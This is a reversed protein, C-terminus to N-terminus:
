WSLKEAKRFRNHQKGILVHVYISDGAISQDQQMSWRTNKLTNKIINYKLEFIKRKHKEPVPLVLKHLASAWFIEMWMFFLNRNVCRNSIFLWENNEFHNESTLKLRKNHIEIMFLIKISEYRKSLWLPFNTKFINALMFSTASSGSEKHIIRM